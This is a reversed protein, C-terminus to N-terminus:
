QEEVTLKAGDATVTFSVLADRTHPAPPYPESDTIARLVSQDFTDTGSPRTIELKKVRGDETLAVLVEVRDEVKEKPAKFKGKIIAEVQKRYADLEGASALPKEEAKGARGQAATQLDGPAGKDSAAAATYQAAMTDVLWLVTKYDVPVPPENGEPPPADPPSAEATPPSIVVMAKGAIPSRYAGVLVQHMKHDKTSRYRGVFWKFPGNGVVAEGSDVRAEGLNQPPEYDAFPLKNLLVGLNDVVGTNDWVIFLINQNGREGKMGFSPVAGTRESTDEFTWETPPTDKFGAYRVAIAIAKDAAAKADEPGPLGPPQAPQPAQQQQQGGGLMMFVSLGLLALAGLLIVQKKTLLGPKQLSRLRAGTDHQAHYEHHEQEQEYESGDDGPAGEPAQEELLAGCKFCNGSM